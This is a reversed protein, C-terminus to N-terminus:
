ISQIYSQKRRNSQNFINPKLNIFIIRLNVELADFDIFTKLSIFFDTEASIKVNTFYYMNSIQVIPTKSSQM